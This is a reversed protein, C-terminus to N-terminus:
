DWDGRLKTRSQDRAVRTAHRRIQVYMIGGFFKCPDMGDKFRDIALMAQIVANSKADDLNAIQLFRFRASIKGVLQM